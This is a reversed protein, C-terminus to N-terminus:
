RNREYRDAERTSASEPFSRAARSLAEAHTPYAFIADTLAQVGTGERMALIANEHSGGRFDSILNWVRRLVAAWDARAGRLEIGFKHAGRAQHLFSAAHLFANTPDCGYNLCTGGLLDKGALAVRLRQRAAIKAATGGAAGAGVILLDYGRKRAEM